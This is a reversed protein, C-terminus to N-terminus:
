VPSGDKRRRVTDFHRISDGRRIRDLILDEEQRRDPPILRLISQGVMEEARYGFIKEAGANWSTVIGALSKGIIADESSEVIAALHAAAAESRRRETIDRMVSLACREGHFTILRSSLNFDLVRGDALRLMTEYNLNEGREELTRLFALREAENTWTTYDRSPRGVVEEPTCGWLRCIAENARLVVRDRLRVITVCDPSLRFSKAFLEESERLAEEAAKRETIDARIAVYQRPKGDGNLFPVITTDVWYFTGDKARNKLEGHWVRGQTITTWLDRIFEKPHHGSNILRHDQGLLEERSYQSIACFKDNVYTIRGQPDTIAVIAHQDLAARLDGVERQSEKLQEATLM